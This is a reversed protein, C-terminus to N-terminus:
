LVEEVIQQILVRSLLHEMGRYLVAWDPLEVIVRRPLLVAPLHENTAERWIYVFTLKVKLIDKHPHAHRTASSSLEGVEIFPAAVNTNLTRNGSNWTTHTYLVNYRTYHLHSFCSLPEWHSLTNYSTHLTNLTPRM